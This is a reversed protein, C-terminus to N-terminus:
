TILETSANVQIVIDEHPQSTVPDTDAGSGGDDFSGFIAVGGASIRHGKAHIADSVVGALAAADQKTLGYCKALLRVEQIAARKLRAHGLRSLVIFRVYQGPGRADGPDTATKGAPEGPRVRTCPFAIVAADDRIETLIRGTPDVLSM